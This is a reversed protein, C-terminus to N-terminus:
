YAGPRKSWSPSNVVDVKPRGTLVPHGARLNVGNIGTPGKSEEQSWYTIAVTNEGRYNLIGEPIFFSTQGGLRGILKGFQWGNVFLQVRFDVDKARDFDINLPIDWGEPLDLSFQTTYLRIGAEVIDEVPSGTAWNRSPPKPLHWGQREAYSGGENLPGRTRDQYEEGGLNGTIKWSVETGGLSYYTVGRPSKMTDHGIDHNMNQGNNDVVVTLVYEKGAKLKPLAHSLETTETVAEGHWSGIYTRDLWTSHGYAYGGATGLELTTENGIATFRGRYVLYGPHFGYDSGFLVVPNRQTGFKNNTSNHDAETWLSDDYKPSIEPLSDSWKWKASNLDPLKFTPAKYVVTTQLNGATGRSTKVKKGNIELKSM